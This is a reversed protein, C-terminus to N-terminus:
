VRASGPHEGAENHDGDVVDRDPEAGNVPQGAPQEPGPFAPASLLAIAGFLMLLACLSIVIVLVITPEHYNRLLQYNAYIEFGWSGVVVLLARVGRGANAWGHLNAGRRSFARMTMGYFTGGPTVASRWWENESDWFRDADPLINGIARYYDGCAWETESVLDSLHFYLYAFAVPLSLILFSTDSVEVM